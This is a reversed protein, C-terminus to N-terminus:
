AIARKKRRKANSEEERAKRDVELMAPRGRKAQPLTKRWAKFLALEEPTVPRNCLRCRTAARKKRRRNILIVAHPKSCTVAKRAEREPPITGGCVVCHLGEINESDNTM